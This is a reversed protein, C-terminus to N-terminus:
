DKLFRQSSGSSILLNVCNTFFAAQNPIVAQICQVYLSLRHKGKTICSTHYLWLWAIKSTNTMSQSRVVHCLANRHCVVYVYM